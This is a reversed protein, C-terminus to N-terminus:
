KMLDKVKRAIAHSSLGWLELADEREGAQHFFEDPTGLRLLKVSSAPVSDNAWELVASGLGGIRSHEELTVVVNHRAFVDKLMGCDLPKVSPFSILEVAVGDSALLKTAESAEHLITGSALICVDKGSTIRIGKGLEVKPASKHV